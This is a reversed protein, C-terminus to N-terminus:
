FILCCKNTPLPDPRQKRDQRIMRVLTYFAEDVCKREKASTEIYPIEYRDAQARAIHYFWKHTKLYSM